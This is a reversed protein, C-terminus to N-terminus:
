RWARRACAPATRPQSHPGARAERFMPSASISAANVRMSAAQAFISAPNFASATFPAAAHVIHTVAIAAASRVPEPMEEIDVLHRRALQAIQDVQRAVELAAALRHRGLLREGALHQGHHELLGRGAGADGEVHRHALEAALGDHEGAGLHLEAAALGDGVGRPHQRAIDVGDHDADEVVIRQGLKRGIGGHRHDVAQRPERMRALDHGVDHGELLVLPRDAPAGDGPGAIGVIHQGGPDMGRLAEVERQVDGGRRLQRRARRQM